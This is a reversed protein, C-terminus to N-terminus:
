YLVKWSFKEPPCLQDKVLKEPALCINNERKSIHKTANFCIEFKCNFYIFDTERAPCIHSVPRSNSVHPMSTLYFPLTTIAPKNFSQEPLDTLIFIRLTELNFLSSNVIKTVTDLILYKKSLLNKSYLYLLFQTKTLWQGEAQCGWM